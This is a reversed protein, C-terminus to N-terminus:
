VEVGGRLRCPRNQPAFSMQIYHLTPATTFWGSLIEPEMFFPFNERDVGKVCLHASHSKCSWGNKIETNPPPSHHVKREPRMVRLFIGPVLLFPPQTVRLDPRSPKKPSFIEQGHRSQFGPCDLVYNTAIGVASDRSGNLAWM